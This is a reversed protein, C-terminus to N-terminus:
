LYGKEVLHDWDIQAQFVERQLWSRYDRKFEETLECPRGLVSSLDNDVPRYEPDACCEPEGYRRENFRDVRMRLQCEEARFDWPRADVDPPPPIDPLICLHYHITVSFQNTSTPLLYDM